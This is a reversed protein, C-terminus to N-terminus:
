CAPLVHKENRENQIQDWCCMPLLLSPSSFFCVFFLILEHFTRTLFVLPFSFIMETLSGSTWMWYFSYRTCVVVIQHRRQTCPVLGSMLIPYSLCEPSLPFTLFTLLQEGWCNFSALITCLPFCLGTREEVTTHSGDFEFHVTQETRNNLINGLNQQSYFVLKHSANIRYQCTTELKMLPTLSSRKMICHLVRSSVWSKRLATTLSTSSSTM